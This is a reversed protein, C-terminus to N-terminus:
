FTNSFMCLYQLICLRTHNPLGQIEVAAYSILDQLKFTSHMTHMMVINISLSCYWIAANTKQLKVKINRHKYIHSAQQADIYKINYEGHM